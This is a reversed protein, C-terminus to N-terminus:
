CCNCNSLIGFAHNPLKRATAHTSLPKKCSVIIEPVDKYVADKTVPLNVTLTCIADAPWDQRFDALDFIDALRLREQQSLNMVYTYTTINTKTRRDPSTTSRKATDFHTLLQNFTKENETAHIAGPVGNLVGTSSAAIRAGTAILRNFCFLPEYEKLAAKLSYTKECCQQPKVPPVPAPGVLVPPIVHPPRPAEAVVGASASATPYPSPSQAFSLESFLVTAAIAFVVSSIHKM